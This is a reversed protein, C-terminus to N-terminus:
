AKVVIQNASSNGHEVESRRTDAGIVYSNTNNMDIPHSM